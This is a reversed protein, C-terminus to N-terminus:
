AGAIVDLALAKEKSKAEKLKFGYVRINFCAESAGTFTFHLYAAKPSTTLYFTDYGVGRVMTVTWGKARIAKVRLFEETGIIYLVAKRDGKKASWQCQMSDTPPHVGARAPFGLVEGVQASTLLSCAETPGGMGAAISSGFALIFVVAPAAIKPTLKM